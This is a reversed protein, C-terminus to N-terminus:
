ATEEPAITFGGVKDGEAGLRDQESELELVIDLYDKFTASPGLHGDILERLEKRFLDPKFAM